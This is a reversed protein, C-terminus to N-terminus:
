WCIAREWSLSSSNAHTHFFIGTFGREVAKVVAHAGLAGLIGPARGRAQEFRQHPLFPLQQYDEQADDDARQEVDKRGLYRAHGHVLNEAAYLVGQCVAAFELDVPFRHAHHKQLKCPQIHQGRRKGVDLLVRHGAYGLGQRQCQAAFDAFLQVAQGQAVKVAVLLALDQAAGGAVQFFHGIRQLVAKGLKQGGKHADDARKDHHQDDAGRQRQRRQNGDGDAQDHGPQYGPPRLAAERGVLLRQAAEVGANLFGEAAIDDDLGEVELRLRHFVGFLEALFQELGAFLRHEGVVDDAGDDAQDVLKAIHGDGNAASHRDDVPANGDAVNLRKYLIDVLNGLRHRLNGERDVGQLARHRRRLAHEAQEVLLLFRGVRRLGLEQGRGAAFHAKFVHAETVAVVVNQHLVHGERGPRAVFDGDDAGGPRALGRQDVQQHPKVFQLAPANGDVAHVNGAHGAPVQAGQHAHDQLIGPQEAAGDAVVDGIALGVGRVFLDKRRCLRRTGVVEDAGHRQPVIRHEAVFNGAEGLPLPLQKGDGAGDEGVGGDENEVLGGGAHVRARLQFDLLGHVRQHLAAGAKDDGVAKGGYPVGVADQHHLVAGDDLLATM